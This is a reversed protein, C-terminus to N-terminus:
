IWNFYDKFGKYGFSVILIGQLVLFFVGFVGLIGCWYNPLNTFYKMYLVASGLNVLIVEIVILYAIFVNISKM